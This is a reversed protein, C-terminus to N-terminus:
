FDAARGVSSGVWQPWSCVATHERQIAALRANYFHDWDADVRIHERVFTDAAERMRRMAYRDAARVVIGTFDGAKCFGAGAGSQKLIKNGTKSKM